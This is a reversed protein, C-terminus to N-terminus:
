RRAAARMPPQAELPVRNSPLWWSVLSKRPVFQRTRCKACFYHRRTPIVKMWADANLRVLYQMGCTCATFRLM